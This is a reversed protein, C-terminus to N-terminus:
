SSQSVLKVFDSDTIIGILHHGEVVPLCSIKNELLITGADILSTEPTVTEPIKTMVQSVRKSNWPGMRLMLSLLDRDSLIGQVDGRSDIVPLHRIKNDSLLSAATDLTEQAKVTIPNSQMIDSVKIEGINELAKLLTKPLAEGKPFREHGTWKQMDEIEQECDVCYAAEPLVELRERPIPEKCNLCAGYTGGYLRELAEEIQQINKINKESLTELTETEQTNTALDANHLRIKSIEGTGSISLDTLAHRKLADQTELLIRKRHRLLERWEVVDQNLLEM